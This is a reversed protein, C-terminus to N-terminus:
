IQISGTKPLPGVRRLSSLEFAVPEDQEFSFDALILTSQSACTVIVFNSVTEWQFCYNLNVIPKGQFFPCFLCKVLYTLWTGPKKKRKVPFCTCLVPLPHFNGISKPILIMLPPTPLVAVGCNFFAGVCTPLYPHM